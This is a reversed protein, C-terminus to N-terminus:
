PKHGLLLNKLIVNEIILYLKNESKIKQKDLVNLM